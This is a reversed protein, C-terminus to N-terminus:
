TFIGTKNIERKIKTFKFKRQSSQIDSNEITLRIDSLLRNVFKMLKMGFKTQDGRKEFDLYSFIDNDGMLICNIIDKKSIWQEPYKKFCIEFLKKMEITESDGGIHMTEKDQICPSGYDACEMIGGCINAWQHFSTFETKGSPMGNNIWNKVLSYLASLVLERNKIVWDHLYPKIFTRKNADEIDLFLRVFRCRNAFDPTFTVGANGSLSFDIENDFEALKNKGLIRDSHRQSTIIKEFTVNNIYGKNNSFHLRKRGYIMASLIKKRLEESSSSNKTDDSSIATEELVNGEYVIGTIGALYDKGIRERNGLYFFVPTRTNFSTFLGRLFPTILAAIANIYDQKSQFCFENFMKRIIEKAEELPMNPKIIEPSNHPLWSKFREDYGRKPFTLKNEYLIPIPITFIRTIHPLSQQLINSSILINAIQQSMSKRKFVTRRKQSDWVYIGPICYKEILTIFRNPTIEVFGAYIEDSNQQNIILKKIEIIDQLDPRYFLIEKDKLIESVELSLLSVLKGIGSLKVIPKEGIKVIQNRLYEQKEQEEKESLEYETLNYKNLKVFNNFQNTYIKYLEGKEVRRLHGYFAALTRKKCLKVITEGVVKIEETLLNNKGLIIAANKLVISNGGTDEEIIINKDILEYLWKDESEHIKYKRLIELANGTKIESKEEFDDYEKLLINIANTNTEVDINNIELIKSQKKRKYNFSGLVRSVRELNFIKDDIDINNKIKFIYKIKMLFNKYMKKNEEKILSKLKHPIYIHYGGGSFGLMGIKINNNNLFQKLKQLEKPKEINHEDIELFIGYSSIINADGKDLRDRGGIYVDIKEKENYLKIKKIFEEENNIKMSKGLPYKKNDFLRIETPKTHKFYRYFTRVNQEHIKNDM